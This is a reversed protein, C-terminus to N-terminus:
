EGQQLRLFACCTYDAIWIDYLFLMNPFM